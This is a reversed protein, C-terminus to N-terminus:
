KLISPNPNLIEFNTTKCCNKFAKHFEHVLNRMKSEQERRTDSTTFGAATFDLGALRGQELGHSSAELVAHDMGAGAAAGLAQALSLADPSTLGPLAFLGEPRLGVCSGELRRGMFM